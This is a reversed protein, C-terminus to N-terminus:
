PASAAPSAKTSIQLTDTDDGLDDALSEIVDLHAQRAEQLLQMLGIIRIQPDTGQAQYRDLLQRQRVVMTNAAPMAGILFGRVSAPGVEVKCWESIKYIYDELQRHHDMDLAITPSKLEVVYVTHPGTMSPDSMLFVLDPRTQDAAGEDDSIVAFDDVQLEKALRTVVKELKKDSTTYRSFEARILWPNDRLLRQLENELRAKGWQALGQDMLSELALIGSRKGRYLKLADVKEIEGLEQLHRAIKELTQPKTQLTILRSLVDTANVSNILVPAMERFEPSEVGWDAAFTSLLRHAPERTKKPLNNVIDRLLKAEPNSEIEAKAQAERFRGHGRIADRMIETVRDQLARVIDNDEKLQTRNTNIFDIASRDLDDAEVVCELYDVSHFSHMGTGLTFLSPGAALRSNCYIRAGRKRAPLHESRPRFGVYYRFTMPPLDETSLVESAYNGPTLDEPWMYEYNPIEYKLLEGNVFISFEEPRLASFAEAITDRMDGVNGKVADTKLKSLKVTTGHVDAQLGEQYTAPIKVESVNSANKLLTDELTITTSFSQGNRKTIVEVLEATGFGALKGLGKRGMVFRKGNESKFQNEKASGPSQRRRRNLPLFKDQVDKWSMGHGDDEITVAITDPLPDLLADYPDRTKAKVAARAAARVIKRQQDIDAVPINISVKSAEGDYANAVFEVLCKGLTTYMNIGLADLMGGQIPMNFHEPGKSQEETKQNPAPSSTEDTM